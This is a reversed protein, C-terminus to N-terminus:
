VRVCNNWIEIRKWDRTELFWYGLPCKSLSILIIKTFREFVIKESTNIQLRHLNYMDQIVHANSLIIRVFCSRDPQNIIKFTGNQGQKRKKRIRIEIQLKCLEM